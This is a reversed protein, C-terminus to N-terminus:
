CGGPNSSFTPGGASADTYTFSCSSNANDTAITISGASAAAALFFDNTTDIGAAAAISDAAPYGNAMNVSTGDEATIPSSYGSSQNKAIAKAHFLAVAGKAAGLAGQIKATRAESSMNVFRPLATAALIGLIVIVVVLEILTFGSQKNRM